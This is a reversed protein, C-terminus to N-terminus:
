NLLFFVANLGPAFTSHPMGLHEALLRRNAFGYAEM